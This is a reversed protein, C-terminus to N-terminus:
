AWAIALASDTLGWSGVRVVTSGGSADVWLAFGGTVVLVALPVVVGLLVLLRASWRAGTLLVLYALALF